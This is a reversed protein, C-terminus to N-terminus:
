DFRGGGIGSMYLLGRMTKSFCIFDFLIKKINQRVSTRIIHIYVCHQEVADSRSLIRSTLFCKPRMNAM